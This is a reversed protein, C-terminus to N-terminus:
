GVTVSPVMFLVNDQSIRFRPQLHLHETEHIFKTEQNPREEDDAKYFFEAQITSTCNEQKQRHGQISSM